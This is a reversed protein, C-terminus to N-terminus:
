ELVVYYNPVIVNAPKPPLTPSIGISRRALEAIAMYVFVYQDKAQVM